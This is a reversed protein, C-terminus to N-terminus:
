LKRDLRIGSQAFHVLLELDSETLKTAWLDLSRLKKMAVLDQLGSRTLRSSGVDLEELTHLVSIQKAMSDDFDCGEIDLSRLHKLALLAAIARPTLEAGQIGLEILNACESIALVDGERLFCNARVTHLSKANGFGELKGPKTLNLLDIIQLGPIQIIHRMATRTVDCWLWMWGVSQLTHFRRALEVTLLPAHTISLKDIRNISSLERIAGRTPEGKISYWGKSDSTTATMVSM